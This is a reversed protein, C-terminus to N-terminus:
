FAHQQCFPHGKRYGKSETIFSVVRKFIYPYFSSSYMKFNCLTTTQAYLYVTTLCSIPILFSVEQLRLYCMYEWVLPRNVGLSFTAALPLPQFPTYQNWNCQQLHWKCIPGMDMEWIAVSCLPCRERETHIPDSRDRLGKSASEITAQLRAVFCSLFKGLGITTIRKWPTPISRQEDLPLHHISNIMTFAQKCKVNANSAFFPIWPQLHLHKCKVDWNELSPRCFDFASTVHLGPVANRNVPLGKLDTTQSPKTSM